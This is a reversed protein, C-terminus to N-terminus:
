MRLDIVFAQVTDDSHRTLYFTCHAQNHSPGHTQEATIHKYVAHLIILLLSTNIDQPTIGLQGRGDFMIPVDGQSAMQVDFECDM